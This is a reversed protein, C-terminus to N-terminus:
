QAKPLKIGTKAGCYACKGKEDLGLLLASYNSRKIIKKGCEPCFTNQGGEANGLYVFSLGKEKAAEFAKELSEQPTPNRGLLKYNPYFRSFHLPMRKDIGAIFSSIEEFDEVSDNCGPVILNTAEVHVGKKHFFKISELVKKREVNGCMKKYFEGNGKLDINIADLNKAIEKAAEKAMYGNSVWVNYLGKKHALEMTDLAYEAFVTPETYTYAIGEAHRSLTGKVIESPATTKTGEIMKETFEQSSNFNQCFECKFNCGYTSISTCHTGPMFNFLPKKEIPDPAMTLAKGYVLSYLKGGINKRVRCYGLSGEPISCHRNCLFCGATKGDMSYFRAEKM